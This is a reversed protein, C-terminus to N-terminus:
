IKRFFANYHPVGVHEFMGVSVIRDFSADIDRYDVLGFQARESLAAKAARERAVALQEKSLTVGYVKASCDRALDLALGGWGCGIDLVELGPTDLSLKAAIHRKKAAQAEDLSQGPKAFYACSYQMNEDLFLEYLTRSLDYHHAVRKKARSQPNFQAISRTMGRLSRALEHWKGVGSMAANRVLLDLLSAIDGQEITLSGNMFLEGLALDPNIALAWSASRSHLRVIIHPEGKGVILPEANPRLVTLTGDQM